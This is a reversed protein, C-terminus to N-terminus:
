ATPKAIQELQGGPVYWDDVPAEPQVLQAAPLATETYSDVADDAHTLQKAPIYENSPADLQVDHAVPVKELLTLVEVAQV